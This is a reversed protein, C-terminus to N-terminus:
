GLIFGRQNAPLARTQQNLYFETKTPDIEHRSAKLRKNVCRIEHSSNMVERQTEKSSPKKPVRDQPDLGVLRRDGLRFRLGSMKM